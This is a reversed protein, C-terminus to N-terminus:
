SLTLMCKFAGENSVTKRRKSRVYMSNNILLEIITIVIIELM